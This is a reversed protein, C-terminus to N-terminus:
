APEWTEFFHRERSELRPIATGFGHEQMHPSDIHAQYAEESEFQEYFFFVNPDDPDRHCIYLLNGPEARAPEILKTIAAAVDEAAGDKATWRATVVYAM